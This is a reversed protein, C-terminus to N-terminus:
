FLKIQRRVTLTIDRDTDVGLQLSTSPDLRVSAGVEGELVPVTGDRLGGGAEGYLHLWGPRRQELLAERARVRAECASIVADCANREREVLVRVTDRHILTDVRIVSDTVRRIDRLTDRRTVYVSDTERIVAREREDGDDGGVLLVALVLVVVWPLARAIM